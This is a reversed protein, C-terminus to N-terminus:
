PADLTKEVVWVSDGEVSYTASYLWNGQPEHEEIEDPDYAYSRACRRAFDIADQATSFVYPEPDIHRDNVMAIYLKTM